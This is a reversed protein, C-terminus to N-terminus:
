LGSAAYLKLEGLAKWGSGTLRIRIYNYAYAPSINYSFSQGETFSFSGVTNIQTYQAGDFSGELVHASNGGAPWIEYRLLLPPNSGLYICAWCEGQTNGSWAWATPPTINKDFARWAPNGPDESNTTVIFPAPTNSSTMKPVVDIVGLLKGIILNIATNITQQSSNAPTNLFAYANSDFIGAADTTSGGSDGPPAASAVIWMARGTSDKPTNTLLKGGSLNIQQIAVWQPTQTLYLRIYRYAKDPKIAYKYPQGAITNLSQISHITDFQAGDLSGQLQWSHIGTVRTLVEYESILLARDGFYIQIWQPAFLEANWFNSTTRDFAMYPPQASGYASASAIFPAPVNNATMPPVISGSSGGILYFLEPFEEENVAQGNEQLFVMGNPTSVRDQNVDFNMYHRFGIPLDLGDQMVAVNGITLDIATNITQQSSNAPTNLVTYANSDFIEAAYTTGGSSDGPPGQPGQIGQPGTPGPVGQPGAPGQIGQVGPAGDAGPDGKPGQQGPLGQPGPAGPEGAPGQPGTDGRAGSPGPQGAPGQIGAPGPQGPPGQPGPPGQVAGQGLAVNNTYSKALSLTVLDV